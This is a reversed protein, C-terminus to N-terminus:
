HLNRFDDRVEIDYDLCLCPKNDKTLLARLVIPLKGNQTNDINWGLDDGMPITDLQPSGIAEYFDNLSIYMDSVINYSCKAIAQNISEANSYFFRGSYLDKCLVTGDGPIVCNNSILEKQDDPYDRDLRDKVIADRISRAKKEGLADEMKDELNKVASESLTYAASLAAIRRNSISQSGVICSVTTAGLIVPPAMVPVMKKLMEGRVANKAERDKPHCDKLDAKYEKLIKDAKLGAKYAAYATSAVGIVALGALIAPSKKKAFIETTELMKMFKKGKM